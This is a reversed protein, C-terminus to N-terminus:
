ILYKYCYKTKSILKTDIHNWVKCWTQVDKWYQKCSPIMHLFSFLPQHLNFDALTYHSTNGWDSHPPQPFLNTPTCILKTRTGCGPLVSPSIKIFKQFQLNWHFLYNQNLLIKIKIYNWQKLVDYRLTENMLQMKMWENILLQMIKQTKKM